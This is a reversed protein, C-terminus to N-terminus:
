ASIQAFFCNQLAIIRQFRRFCPVRIALRSRQGDSGERIAEGLGVCEKEFPEAEPVGFGGAAIRQIVAVAPRAGMCGRGQLGVALFDLVGGTDKEGGQAIRDKLRDAFGRRLLADFLEKTAGVAGIPATEVRGLPEHDQLAGRAPAFAHRGQMPRHILM